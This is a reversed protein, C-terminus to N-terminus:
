TGVAARVRELLVDDEFPKELFDLAGADMARTRTRETGYATVFIIPIRQGDRALGAQLDLGSMGPMELDVILCATESRKGCRLFEQASAFALPLFGDSRLVAYIASRVDEDDDVVAILPMEGEDLKMM